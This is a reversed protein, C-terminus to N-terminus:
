LIYAFVGLLGAALVGTGMNMGNALAVAASGSKTPAASSGGTSSATSDGSTATAGAAGGSGGSSSPATTESASSASATYDSINKTGCNDQIDTKCKGQGVADNPHATICGAFNAECVFDPLTNKYAALDPASGDECLCKYTM